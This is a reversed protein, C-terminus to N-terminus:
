SFVGEKRRREKRRRRKRRQPTNKPIQPLAPADHAMPRLRSNKVAFAFFAFFNKPSIGEKRRREKRKRRQPTNKPIQPAATWNDTFARGGL